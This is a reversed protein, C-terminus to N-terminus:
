GLCLLDRRPDSRLSRRHARATVGDHRAKRSIRRPDRGDGERCPRRRRAIAARQLPKSGGGDLFSGASAFREIVSKPGLAWSIRGLVERRLDDGTFSYGSEADDLLIPISTFAKFIDKSGCLNEAFPNFLYVGDVKGPDCDVVHESSDSTSDSARPPTERSRSSTDEINSGRYARTAPYLDSEPVQNCSLLQDHLSQELSSSSFATMCFPFLDNSTQHEELPPAWRSRANALNPAAHEREARSLQRAGDLRRLTPQNGITAVM